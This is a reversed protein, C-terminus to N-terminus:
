AHLSRSPCPGRLRLIRCRQWRVSMDLNNQSRTHHLPLLGLLSQMPRMQLISLRLKLISASRPTRMTWVELGTILARTPYDHHFLISGPDNVLTKYSYSTLCLSVGINSVYLQLQAPYLIRPLLPPSLKFNNLQVAPEWTRPVDGRIFIKRPITVPYIMIVGNPGVGVACYTHTWFEPCNSLSGQSIVYFWPIRSEFKIM